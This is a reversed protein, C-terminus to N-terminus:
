SYAAPSAKAARGQRPSCAHRAPGVPGLRRDARRRPRHRRRLRARRRHHRRHPRRAVYGMDRWFRYVGVVPARAVPSVADSIAAILTPYVLATGLGLLSRPSRPSRSRATASPSCPWRPPRSRAHGRRDAAQARRQRVLSRHRDARRGLRGPVAGAVLGIEAVGAGHAALFLPVLGWALADNLNNVLGAQSCSRLAPSATPPAPRVRRAAAAPAGDAGHHHRAQELAVHAATDRVFLVSLLFATSPSRRRRRRRPRRPRRVRRGALRQGRRRARRRRLRGGRQPRARPRPAAARRPRDEHGRDHVLGAGPQRRAPRQRRRDLGLEARRAILLPVPLAFAWGVILLRRRGVRQPWRAPPSTPSRRPSGSPSSSRCCRPAPPWGSTTAASSRCRRASSGSWRASSRTSRSWCRSSRPPERAARPPRRPADRSRPAGARRRPQRRRDRGSARAGAPHRQRARRRVRGRLRVAARPQPPARLRDDLGPQGVPRPRLGLRLLAGPLAVLHDPLALLRETLSRYLTRAMEEVTTSATPTSTRAAPTASSCRTAPSCSGRSTAAAHPRHRRLRPARARPRADRDGAARHQRPAVVEGDALAHHDFEVGAGEPLYATAGTRAVLEPLGSVHDAQVHTEFVAVIPAGQAEALALYEDVLDVHPDVVAFASHTKCGLLYSACATDDNLLQRFFM